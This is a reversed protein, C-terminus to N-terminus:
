KRAVSFLINAIMALLFVVSVLTPGVMDDYPGPDRRRIRIARWRYLYLAYLTFMISVTGFLFGSMRATSDGLGVLASSIGGLFISFHIWSLFTRENAFFVKPEVRVPVAIRKDTTERVPNMSSTRRSTSPGLLPTSESDQEEAWVIPISIHSANKSTETLEYEKEGSSSKSIPKRIDKDMQPLWYPVVDVKDPFLM